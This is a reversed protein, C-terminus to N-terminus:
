VPDRIESRRPIYEAMIYPVPWYLFEYTCGFRESANVSEIQARKFDCEFGERRCYGISYGFVESRMRRRREKGEQDEDDM